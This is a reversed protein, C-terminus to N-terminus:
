QKRNTEIRTAIDPDLATALRQAGTRAIALTLTKRRAPPLRDEPADNVIEGGFKDALILGTRPPLLDTPFTPLVAFFLKDCYALYDPWKEDTRFDTVSSKIEVIWVDGKETLAIIDARRGNALTYETLPALGHARLIRMVGRQINRATESQRGDDAIKIDPETM